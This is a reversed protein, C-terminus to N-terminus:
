CLIRALIFGPLIPNCPWNGAWLHVWIIDKQCSISCQLTTTTVNCIENATHPQNQPVECSIM